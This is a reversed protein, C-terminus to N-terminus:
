VVNQVAQRFRVVVTMSSSILLARLAGIVNASNVLAMLAKGLPFAGPGVITVVLISLFMSSPVMESIYLRM